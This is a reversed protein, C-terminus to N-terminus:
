ASSPMRSLPIHSSNLRTSKRDRPETFGTPLARAGHRPVPDHLLENASGDVTDTTIGAMFSRAVIPVTTECSAVCADHNSTSTTSSPSFSATAGSPLTGSLTLGVSSNFGNLNNITVNYTAVSGQNVSRTSPSTTISYDPTSSYSLGCRGGAANIWNQQILYNMTGLQM